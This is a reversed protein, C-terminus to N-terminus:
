YRIQSILMAAWPKNDKMVVLVADEGNAKMKEFCEILGPMYTFGAAAGATMSGATVAEVFKKPDSLPEFLYMHDSVSENDVFCLDHFIDVAHNFADTHLFEIIKMSGNYQIEKTNSIAKKKMIM